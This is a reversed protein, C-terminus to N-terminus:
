AALSERRLNRGARAPHAETLLAREAVLQRRQAYLRDIESRLAALAARRRQLAEFELGMDASWLAHLDAAAANIRRVLRLDEARNRELEAAADVRGPRPREAITYVSM